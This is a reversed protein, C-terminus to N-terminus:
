ASRLYISGSSIKQKKVYRKGYTSNTKVTKETKEKKKIKHLINKNYKQYKEVTKKFLMDILWLIFYM